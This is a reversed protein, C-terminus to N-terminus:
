HSQLESTHEESRLPGVRGFAGLNCYILRPSAATLAEAGLGHRDLTGPKLNQLVVDAHELIFAKLREVFDPDDFNARVSAKGNNVGHFLVSADDVFPPGWDRAYDGQRHNEIKIVRAGLRALINGAYPASLSHGIEVVCTGTLPLSPQSM